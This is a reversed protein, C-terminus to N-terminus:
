ESRLSIKLHCTIVNFPESISWFQIETICEKPRLYKSFVLSNNLFNSLLVVDILIIVLFYCLEQSVMIAWLMSIFPYTSVREQILSAM